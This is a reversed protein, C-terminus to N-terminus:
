FVYGSTIGFFNHGSNPLSLTGNSFHKVFIEFSFSRWLYGVFVREGFTFNSGVRLEGKNKIYAGIGLGTYLNGYNQSVFLPLLIDESIGAFALNLASFNTKDFGRGFGFFGGLELNLRGHIRFFRNPQSYIFEVQYLNEFGKSRVSAGFELRIANQKDGFAPNTAFYQALNKQPASDLSAFDATSDLKSKASHSM